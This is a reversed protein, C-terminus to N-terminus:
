HELLGRRKAAVVAQLRSHAGLATLINAVHNRVTTTSLHLAAAVEGTSAGDALLRLVDLQRPTLVDSAGREQASAGGPAPAARRTLGFLGVVRSGERVPATSVEIPVLEGERDKVLLTLETPEGRCVRNFVEDARGAEEPALYDVFRTGVADGALADSAANQWRVVGDRDVLLAAVPLDELATTVDGGLEQLERTLDTTEPPPTTNMPRCM